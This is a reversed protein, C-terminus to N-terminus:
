QLQMFNVSFGHLTFNLQQNNKKFTKCSLLLKECNKEVFKKKDYNIWKTIFINTM